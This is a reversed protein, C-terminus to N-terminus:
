YNITLIANYSPDVALVQDVLYQKGNIQIQAMVVPPPLCSPWLMVPVSLYMQQKIIGAMEQIEPVHIHFWGQVKHQEIALEEAGLIDLASSSAIIQFIDSM